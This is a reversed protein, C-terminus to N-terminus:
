KTPKAISAIQQHVSVLSVDQIKQCATIFAAVNDKNYEGKNLFFEIEISGDLYHLLMKNFNETLEYEDLLPKIIKELQNRTALDASPKSTEDDEPDIHITIDEMEPFNESLQNVICETILHGESVSIHSAVQIHVDAFIQGGLMRTRLMHLNEVCEFSDILSKIKQVKEPEVASELLENVSNIILKIGMAFIMIAVLIAAVSDLWKVEFFIAGAIGIFVIISSLADSRHHWANAKLLDSNIHKAKLLTYQYLGEKSIVALAAFVLGLAEPLQGTTTFFLRDIAGTVIGIAVGTLILGLIVTGLTEFRGHGYHHDEDAEKSAIKASFLVIFDSALDSVTHIGDAVLAQSHAFFGGLLQAVALMINTLVGVLTVKRTVEYREQKSLKKEAM